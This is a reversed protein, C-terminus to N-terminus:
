GSDAGFEAANGARGRGRRGRRSRARRDDTCRERRRRRRAGPVSFTAQCEAADLAALGGSSGAGVYVLRGGGRFREVIEDVVAAIESLSGAVAGAVTADEHNM